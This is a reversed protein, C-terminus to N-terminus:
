NKDTGMHKNLLDKFDRILQDVTGKYTTRYLINHPGYMVDTQSYTETNADLFKALLDLVNDVTEKEATEILEASDNAVSVLEPKPAGQKYRIVNADTMGSNQLFKLMNNQDVSGEEVFLFENKM